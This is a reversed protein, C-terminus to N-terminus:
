IYHLPGLDKAPFRKMIDDKVTCMVNLNQATPILDDVYVAVFVLPNVKKFIGCDSKLPTFGLEKMYECFTDNSCRPSQKLGCLARQLLCDLNEQGEKVYGPPQEPQQASLSPSESMRRSSAVPAVPSDYDITVPDVAVASRHSGFDTENFVVDHRVIVCNRKEDYLRYGQM